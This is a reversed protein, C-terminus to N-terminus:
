ATRRGSASIRSCIRWPQASVPSAFGRQDVVVNLEATTRSRDSAGPVFLASTRATVGAKECSPWLEAQCKWRMTAEQAATCECPVTRLGDEPVFVAVRV